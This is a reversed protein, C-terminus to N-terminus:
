RSGGGPQKTELATLRLELGAVRDELALRAAHEEQLAKILPAIFQSYRLAHQGTEADLVHGGFDRDGLAAKVQQRSQVLDVVGSSGAPAQTQVVQLVAFVQSLWQDVAGTHELETGRESMPIVYAAPAVLNSAMAAELGAAAEIERMGTTRARLRELFPTVDM